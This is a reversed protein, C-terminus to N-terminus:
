EGFHPFGGTKESLRQRVLDVLGDALLSERLRRNAEANWSCGNRYAAEQIAENLQLEVRLGAQIKRTIRTM